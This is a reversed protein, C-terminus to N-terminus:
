WTTPSRTDHQAGEDLVLYRSQVSLAAAISVLQQGRWFAYPLRM